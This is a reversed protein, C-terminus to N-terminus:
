GDFIVREEQCWNTINGLKDFEAQVAEKIPISISGWM